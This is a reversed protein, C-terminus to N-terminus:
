KMLRRYTEQKKSASAANMNRYLTKSVDKTLAAVQRSWLAVKQQPAEGHQYLEHNRCTM